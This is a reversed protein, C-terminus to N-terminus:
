KLATIAFVAPAAEAKASTITVSRLRGPRGAVAPIKVTLRRLVAPHSRAADSNSNKSAGFVGRWVIPADPTSALDDAAAINKGYVLPITQAQGGDTATVTVSGAVAGKDARHSAALLLCLERAPIDGLPVTVVTPPPAGPPNLKGALLLVAGSRSAIQYRVGDSL